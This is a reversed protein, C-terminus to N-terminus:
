SASGEPYTAFSFSPAEGLKNLSDGKNQLLNKLEKGNKARYEFYTVLFFGNNRNAAIVFFDSTGPITKILNIKDPNGDVNKVIFDWDNATIAFNELPLCCHDSSVISRSLVLCGPLLKLLVAGLFFWSFISLPISKM